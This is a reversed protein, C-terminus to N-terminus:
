AGRAGQAAIIAQALKRVECDAGHNLAVRAMDIAGQHHPIMERLFDLDADDTFEIAMTNHTRGNVEQYERSIPDTLLGDSRHGHHQDHKM